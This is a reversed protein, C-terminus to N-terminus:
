DGRVCVCVCVCVCRFLVPGSIKNMEGVIRTGCVFCMRKGSKRDERWEGEDMLLLLLLLLDACACVCVHACGGM